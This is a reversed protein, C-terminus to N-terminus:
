RPSNRFKTTVTFFSKSPNIVRKTSVTKRSGDARTNTKDMQTAIILASDKRALRSPAMTM